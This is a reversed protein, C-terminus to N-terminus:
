GGHRKVFVELAQIVKHLQECDCFELPQDAGRMQATIGEIYAKSMVPVPPQQMAGIREALRFIKKAYSKREPPLGFVFRWENAPSAAQGSAKQLRRLHRVLDELQPLTMASLSVEGTVQLQVAHRDDESLALAKKGCIAHVTKILSQKRLVNM